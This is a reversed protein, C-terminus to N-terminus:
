QKKQHQYWNKPRNNWVPNLCVIMKYM